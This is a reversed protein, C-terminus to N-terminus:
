SKGTDHRIYSIKEATPLFIYRILDFSEIGSNRLLDFM